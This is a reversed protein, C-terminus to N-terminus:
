VSVLLESWVLQSLFKSANGQFKLREIILGNLYDIVLVYYDEIVYNKKKENIM